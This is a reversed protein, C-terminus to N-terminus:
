KGYYPLNNDEHWKKLIVKNFKNIKEYTKYDVVYDGNDAKFSKANFFKREADITLISSAVAISGKIAVIGSGSLIDQLGAYKNKENKENLKAYDRFKM